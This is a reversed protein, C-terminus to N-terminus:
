MYIYILTFTHSIPSFILKCHMYVYKPNNMDMKLLFVESKTTAVMENTKQVTRAVVSANIM